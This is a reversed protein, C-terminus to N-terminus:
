VAFRDSSVYEVAFGRMQASIDVGVVACGYRQILAKAVRGIGCGYDLLCSDANLDMVRGIEAVLNSTEVEWRESTTMNPVASLIVKKATELNDADFLGPSYAPASVIAAPAKRPTWANRLFRLLMNLYM